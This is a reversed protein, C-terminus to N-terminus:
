LSLDLDGNVSLNKRIRALAQAHLQAVRGKTVGLEAAITQFECQGFYHRGILERERDPLEQVARRAIRRLEALEAGAYPNARVSSDAPGEDPPEDLLVGIALGV